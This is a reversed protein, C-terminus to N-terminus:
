IKHQCLSQPTFIITFNINVLLKMEIITSEIQVKFGITEIRVKLRMYIENNNQENIEMIYKM